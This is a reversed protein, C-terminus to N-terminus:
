KFRPPSPISLGGMPLDLVNLVLPSEDQSATYLDRLSGPQVLDNIDDASKMPGVTMRMLM